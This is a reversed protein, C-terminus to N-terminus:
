DLATSADLAWSFAEALALDLESQMLGSLMRPYERGSQLDSVDCVVRAMPTRDGFAAERLEDSVPLTRALEDRPIQTLLDFSSVMGSTFGLRPSEAVKPALLECARARTLSTIVVDSSSSGAPRALLLGVWSKIRWEGAQVLAERLSSVARGTEGLRGLSALQLVQFTMGPETRLIDEIEDFDLDDGLVSLSMRLRTFDSASVVRTSETTPRGLEYGQFLTFGREVLDAFEAATEVKEALLSLYPRGCRELLEELAEGRLAQTDVRLISALDLIDGARPFWPFVNVAIRFGITALRRCGAVVADDVGVSADVELVTRRPPLSIPTAGTLLARDSNCFIVKDGVLRDLGINLASFVVHSSVLGSGQVSHLDSRSADAEAFSLEYGIVQRDRDHISQRGALVWESLADSM